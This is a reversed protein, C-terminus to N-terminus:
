VCEWEEGAVVNWVVFLLLWRLQELAGECFVSRWRQQCGASLGLGLTCAKDFRPAVKKRSQAGTAGCEEKKVGEKAKLVRAESQRKEKAIRWRLLLAIKASM